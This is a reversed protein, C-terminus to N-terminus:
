AGHIEVSDPLDNFQMSVKSIEDQIARDMREDNAIRRINRKVIQNAIRITIQVTNMAPLTDTM